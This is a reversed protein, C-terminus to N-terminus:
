LPNYVIGVGDPGFPQHYRRLHAAWGGPTTIDYWRGTARDVLDPGFTGRPTLELRALPSNEPARALLTRVHRDIREGVFMRELRAAKEKTPQRAVAAAQRPTLGTADHLKLAQQLTQTLADEIPDGTAGRIAQSTAGRIVSTTPPKCFARCFGWKLARYGAYALTPGETVWLLDTWVSGDLAQSTPPVYREVSVSPQYTGDAAASGAADYITKDDSWNKDSGLLRSALNQGRVIRPPPPLQPRQSLGPAAAPQTGPKAAQAVGWDHFTKQFNRNCGATKCIPKHGDFEVNTVPNGGAFAYRNQTLPDAQLAMDGAASAFTDRSLFQGIEPRYHRAHMDYTKVGSDYYFGEFRFPNDKADPDLGLELQDGSSAQPAERDLEGYPDYEYEKTTLTSGDSEELAVVSGNADKAYASYKFVAGEEKQMGQREGQSDYDFSLRKQL